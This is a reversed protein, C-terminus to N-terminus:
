VFCPWFTCIQATSPLPHSPHARLKRTNGGERAVTPLRKVENLCSPQSHLSGRLESHSHKSQHLEQHYSLLKGWIKMLHVEGESKTGRDERGDPSDPRPLDVRTLLRKRVSRYLSRFSRPASPLSLLFFYFRLLHQLRPGQQCAPLGPKRSLCITEKWLGTQVPLEGALVKIIKTSHRAQHHVGKIM